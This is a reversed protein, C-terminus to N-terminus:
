QDIGGIRWQEPVNGGEEEFRRLGTFPPVSEGKEELKVKLVIAWQVLSTTLHRWMSELKRLEERCRAEADRERQWRLIAEERERKSAEDIRGELEGVRRQLLEVYDARAEVEKESAVTRVKRRDTFAISGFTVIISASAAIVAAAINPSDFISM